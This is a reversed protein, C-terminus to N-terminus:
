NTIEPEAVTESQQDLIELLARYEALTGDLVPVKMTANVTDSELFYLLATQGPREVVPFSIAENGNYGFDLKTGAPVEAFYDTTGQTNPDVYQIKVIRSNDARNVLSGILYGRGSDSVLYIFNRAVVNELNVQQGDSPSYPQLSAVNGTISCASTTLTLAALLATAALRRAFL